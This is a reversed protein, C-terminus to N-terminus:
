RIEKKEKLNVMVSKGKTLIIELILSKQFTVSEALGRLTDLWIHPTAMQLQAGDKLDRVVDRSCCVFPAVFIFTVRIISNYIQANIIQKIQKFVIFNNM